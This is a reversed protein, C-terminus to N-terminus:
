GHNRVRALSAVATALCPMVTLLIPAPIMYFLVVLGTFGGAPWNAPNSSTRSASPNKM